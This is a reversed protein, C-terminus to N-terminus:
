EEAEQTPHSDKPMYLSHILLFYSSRSSFFSWFTQAEWKLANQKWLSPEGQCM